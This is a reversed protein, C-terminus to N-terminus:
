FSFFWRVRKYIGHDLWLPFIKPFVIWCFIFYWVTNIATIPFNYFYITFSPCLLLFYSIVFIPNIQISISISPNLSLWSLVLFPYSFLSFADIDRHLLSFSFPFPPLMTYLSLLISDRNLLKHCVLLFLPTMTVGRQTSTYVCRLLLNKWAIKKEIKVKIKWLSLLSNCRHKRVLFFYWRDQLSISFM